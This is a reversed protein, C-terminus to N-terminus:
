PTRQAHTARMTQFLQDHVPDYEILPACLCNPHVAGPCAQWQAQPLYANSTHAMVDVLRYLKPAGDPMLWLAKCVTCADVRPLRFVQVDPILPVPRPTRTGDPQTIWNSAHQVVVQHAAGWGHANALETRAVRLWDRQWHGADDALLRALAHPTLHQTVATQLHTRLSQQEQRLLALAVRSQVGTVLPRMLAAGQRRAYDLAGQVHPSQPQTSPAHLAMAKGLVDFTHDPFHGAAHLAQHEPLTILPAHGTVHAILGQGARDLVHLCHAWQAHTWPWQWSADWSKEITAPAQILEELTPAANVWWSQGWAAVQEWLAHLEPTAMPTTVDHRQRTAQGRAKAIESPLLGPDLGLREWCLRTLLRWKHRPVATGVHLLLDDPALADM